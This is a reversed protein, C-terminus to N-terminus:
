PVLSIVMLLVLLLIGHKAVWLLGDEAINKNMSVLFSMTVLVSGIIAATIMIGQAITPVIVDLLFMFALSGALIFIIRACFEIMSGEIMQKASDLKFLGMVVDHQERIRFGEQIISM